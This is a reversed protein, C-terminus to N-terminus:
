SDGDKKRVYCNFEPDWYLHNQSIQNIIYDRPSMTDIEFKMKKNLYQERRVMKISLVMFTIISALFISIISVIFYM